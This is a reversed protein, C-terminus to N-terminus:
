DRRIAKTKVVARVAKQKHPEVTSKRSGGMGEGWTVTLERDGQSFSEDIVALSIWARSEVSYVPHFSVGVRKGDHLVEDMQFTSYNAVPMEMYKFRQGDGYLSAHIAATDNANWVLRVKRRKPAKAAAELAKRGCFEHDFKVMFGYGLDFPTFYCENLDGAPFSGGISANSEYAADGLWERYARTAEGTYIAPIASSIWGSEVGTVPYNRGGLKRLGYKKGVKWITDAVDHGIAAPGWMEYGPAGSMRHNLATVEHRGIKFKGMKFFDIAPLHGETAEELIALANPGQVQFRFLRRDALNPSPTDFCLIKADYGGSELHFRVWNLLNAKGVLYVKHDEECTLIADGVYLGDSNCCVYQKAQMPGFSAFSNIGLDSLLRTVDQGEILMNCMHFSMDQFIATKRWADQEDTWNTFEPAIPFAFPAGANDYLMDYTSGAHEIREALSQTKM